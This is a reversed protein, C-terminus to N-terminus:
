PVRHEAGFAADLVRDADPGTSSLTRAGRDDGGQAVLTTEPGAQSGTPGTYTCEANAACVSM